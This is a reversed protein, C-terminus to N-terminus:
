DSGIACVCVCVRASAWARHVRLVSAHALSPARGSIRSVKAGRYRIDRRCNRRSVVNFACSCNCPSNAVENQRVPLRKGEDILPSPFTVICRCGRCTQRFDASIPCGTFAFIIERVQLRIVCRRRGPEWTWCRPQEPYETTASVGVSVSAIRGCSYTNILANGAVARDPIEGFRRFVKIM